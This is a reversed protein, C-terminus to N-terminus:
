NGRLTGPIPAGRLLLEAIADAVEPRPKWNCKQWTGPKDGDCTVPELCDPAAAAAREPDDDFAIRYGWFQMDNPNLWWQLPGTVQATRGDNDTGTNVLCVSQGISLAPETTEARAIASKTITKAM